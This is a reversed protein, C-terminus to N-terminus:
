PSSQAQGRWGREALLTAGVRGLEVRGSGGEGEPHWEFRAREFYQVTLGTAPDTFVESVPYGFLAIAERESVAPDGLDLGHSQWYSLFAGCVTHGTEPFFACGEDTRDWALLSQFARSDLFGWSAAEEVGM